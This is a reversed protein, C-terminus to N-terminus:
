APKRHSEWDFFLCLAQDRMRDALQVGLRRELEDRNVVNATTWTPKEDRYRADYIRWLTSQQFETPSMGIPVPDSILLIEPRTFTSIFDQERTDSQIVDRAKSFLLQGDIAEATLGHYMVAARLACIALHDKGTGASGFLLMGGGGKAILGPLNFAHKRVAELAERQRPTEAVYSDFTCRSYRKGIRKEIATWNAKRSIQSERDDVECKAQNGGSSILRERVNGLASSLGEQTQSM